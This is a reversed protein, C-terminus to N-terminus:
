YQIYICLFNTFKMVYTGTLDKEMCVAAKRRRSYACKKCHPLVCTSCNRGTFGKPCICRRTTGKVCRGGNKCQCINFVKMCMGHRYKYGRDCKCQHNKNEHSNNPCKSACRHHLDFVECCEGDIRCRRSSCERPCELSM